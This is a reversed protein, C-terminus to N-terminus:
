LDSKNTTEIVRMQAKFDDPTIKKMLADLYIRTVDVPYGDKSKMTVFM